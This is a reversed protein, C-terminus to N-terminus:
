KNKTNMILFRKRVFDVLNWILKYFVEFQYSPKIKFFNNSLKINKQM